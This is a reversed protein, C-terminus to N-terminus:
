VFTLCLQVTVFWGDRCVNLSDSFILMRLNQHITLKIQLHQISPDCFRAM